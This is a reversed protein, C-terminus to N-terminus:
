SNTVSNSAGCGRDPAALRLGAASHQQDLIAIAAGTMATESPRLGARTENLELTRTIRKAASAAGKPM